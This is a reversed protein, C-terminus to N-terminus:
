LVGDRVSTNKNPIPTLFRKADFDPGFTEHIPEGAFTSSILFIAFLLRQM